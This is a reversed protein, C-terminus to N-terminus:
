AMELAVKHGQKLQLRHLLARPGFPAFRGKFRRSSLPSPTM